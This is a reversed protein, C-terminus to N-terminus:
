LKFDRRIVKGSAPFFEGFGRDTVIVSLTNDDLFATVIDVRTTKDPRDPFDDLPILLRDQRASGPQTVLLEIDRRGAPIVGASAKAEYWDSGAQALVLRRERGEYRVQMSVTVGLRGECMCMYPYSTVENLADLAMYVAGRAYLASVQFVRRKACIIRLFQPAWETEEFGRGTLFVSNIVKKGMLREACSSLISDGLKKGSATELIELSFGEELSEHAVKVIQPKRGRVVSLEYYFLGAVSLEFLGAQNLWLDKRQSIVYFLFAEDHCAMHVRERPIGLSDAAHMLADMIGAEKKYITFVVSAVAEGPGESRVAEEEEPALEQMALRLMREAFMEFLKSAKYKVGEITATGDRGMLKILKDVMTGNGLLACRYANEGILWNDTGKEKCIVTPVYLQGAISVPAADHQAPDFFSVQSHDDCIDVGLILGQM